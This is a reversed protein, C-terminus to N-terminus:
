HSRKKNPNKFALHACFSDCPLVVFAAEISVNTVWVMEETPKTLLFAMVPLLCIM